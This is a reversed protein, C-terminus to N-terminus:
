SRREVRVSSAGSVLVDEDHRSRVPREDLQLARGPLERGLDAADDDDDVRLGVVADPMAAAEDDERERASSSRRLSRTEPTARHARRRRWPGPTSGPGEATRAQTLGGRAPSRTRAAAPGGAGWCPAGRRRRSRRAHEHADREDAEARGEETEAPEPDAEGAEEDAQEDAWTVAVNRAGPTTCAARPRPPM